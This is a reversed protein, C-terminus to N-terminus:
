RILRGGILAGGGGGGASFPGSMAHVIVAATRGNADTGDAQCRAAIRAGNAIASAPTMPVGMPGLSAVGNGNFKFIDNLIATESAAAGTGIDLMVATDAGSNTNPPLVSVIVQEHEAACAATLEAWAGETNASGGGDVVTGFTNGTDAGYTHCAAYSTFGGIVGYVTALITVGAASSQARIALRTSAAIRLPIRYMQVMFSQNRTIPLDAIVVTESAAAGTAIDVLHRVNGISPRLLILLGDYQEATSAIIETYASKVANGSARSIKSGLLTTIM